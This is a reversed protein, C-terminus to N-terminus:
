HFLFIFEVADRSRVKPSCHMQQFSRSGGGTSENPVLTRFFMALCHQQNEHRSSCVGRGTPFPLFKRNLSHVVNSSGGLFGGRARARGMQCVDSQNDRRSTNVWQRAAMRWDTEKAPPTHPPVSLNICVGHICNHFCFVLCGSVVCISANKSAPKKRSGTVATM